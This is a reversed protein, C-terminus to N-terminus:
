PSDPNFPGVVLQSALVGVRHGKGGCCCSAESGKRGGTDAAGRPNACIHRFPLRARRAVGGAGGRGGGGGGQRALQVLYQTAQLGDLRADADGDRGGGGRQGRFRGTAVIGLRVADVHDQARLPAVLALPLQHVNQRLAVVHAAADGAPAVRPVGDHVRRAPLELQVQDRRADQVREGGAHDAVPHHDVERREERLDVPERIGAHGVGLLADPDAVPRVQHEVEM